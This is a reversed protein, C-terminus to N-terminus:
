LCLIFFYNLYKNILNISHCQACKDDRTEIQLGKITFNITDRANEKSTLSSNM